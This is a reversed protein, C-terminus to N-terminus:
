HGVMGLVWLVCYTVAFGVVTARVTINIVRQGVSMQPRQGMLRNSDQPAIGATRNLVDNSSPPRRLLERGDPMLYSTSPLTELQTVGSGGLPARPLAPMGKPIIPSYGSM